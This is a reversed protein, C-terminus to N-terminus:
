RKGFILLNYVTPHLITEYYPILYLNKSRNDLFCGYICGNLISIKTGWWLTWKIVRVYYPSIIKVMGTNISTNKWVHVASSIVSRLFKDIEGFQDQYVERRRKITNYSINFFMGFVTTFVVVTIKIGKFIQVIM